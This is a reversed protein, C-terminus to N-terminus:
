PGMEQLQQVKTVEVAKTELQEFQAHKSSSGHSSKGPALSNPLKEGRIAARQNSSLHVLRKLNKPEAGYGDGDGLGM